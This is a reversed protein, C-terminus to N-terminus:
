DGDIWFSEKNVKAGHKLMAALPDQITQADLVSPSELQYRYLEDLENPTLEDLALADLYAWLQKVPVAFKQLLVRHKRRLAEAKRQQGMSELGCLQFVVAEVLVHDSTPDRMTKSKRWITAYEKAMDLGIWVLTDFNQQKAAIAVMRRYFQPRRSYPICSAYQKWYVTLKLGVGLKEEIGVGNKNENYECEGIDLLTDWAEQYEAQDAQSVIAGAVSDCVTNRERPIHQLEVHCPLMDILSNAQKCYEQMLRPKARGQVQQIVTKCDGQILIRLPQSRQVKDNADCRRVLERLGLLIGEYEANISSTNDELRKGGLSIFRENDFLIAACAARSVLHDTPFGTDSPRRVSGDFRM